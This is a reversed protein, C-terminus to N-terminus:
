SFLREVEKFEESVRFRGTFHTYFSDFVMFPTCTQCAPLWREARLKRYEAGFWVDEFSTEFANGMIYDGSFCCPGVVGNPLIFVENFPSTCNSVLRPEEMFFKRASVLVGLKQGLNESKEIIANYEQKVNLLSYRIHEQNDILYNGISVRSLGLDHALIVFDPIERFNETHAVLHLRINIRNNDDLANVFSRVASITREFNGNKMDRNYTEATAANLSIVM